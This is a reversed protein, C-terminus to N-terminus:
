RDKLGLADMVMQVDQRVRDSSFDEKRHEALDNAAIGAKAAVRQLSDIDASALDVRAIAFADNDIFPALMRAAAGADLPPDAWATLVCVLTAAVTSIWRKM